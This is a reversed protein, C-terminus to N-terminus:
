SIVSFLKVLTAFLSNILKTMNPPTLFRVKLMFCSFVCSHFHVFELMEKANAFRTSASLCPFRMSAISILSLSVTTLYLGFLSLLYFIKIKFLFTQLIFKFFIISRIVLTPWFVGRRSNVMIFWVPFCTKSPQLLSTCLFVPFSHSVGTTYFSFLFLINVIFVISYYLVLISLIKLWSSYLANENVGSM